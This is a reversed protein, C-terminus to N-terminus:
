AINERKSSDTGERDAGHRTRQRPSPAPPLPQLRRTQWNRGVPPTTKFQKEIEDGLASLAPRPRPDNIIRQWKLDGDTESPQETASSM